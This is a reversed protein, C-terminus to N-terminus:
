GEPLVRARVTIVGVRLNPELAQFAARSLDFEKRYQGARPHGDPFRDWPGRDTVPLVLTHSGYSFEVRRGMSLTRHACTLADPDFPQGNFMTRGRYEESYFTVPVVLGTPKPRPQQMAIEEGVRAPAVAAAIEADTIPPVERALLQDFERAQAEARWAFAISTGALLFGALCGVVALSQLVSSPRPRPQWARRM